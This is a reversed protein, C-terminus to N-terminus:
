SYFVSESRWHDPLNPRVLEVSAVSLCLDSKNILLIEVAITGIREDQSDPNPYKDDSAPYIDGWRGESPTASLFKLWPHVCIQM